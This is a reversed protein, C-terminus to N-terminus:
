KVERSESKQVWIDVGNLIWPGQEVLVALGSSFFQFRPHMVSNHNIHSIEYELSDRAPSNFGPPGIVFRSGTTDGFEDAIAFGALTRGHEEMLMAVHTTTVLHHLDFLPGTQVVAYFDTDNVVGDLEDSYDGSGNWKFIRDGGTKSFIVEDGCACSSSLSTDYITAQHASFDHMAWAGNGNNASPTFVFSTDTGPYTFIIQDRTAFGVLSSLQAETRADNLGTGLLVDNINESIIPRPGSHENFESVSMGRIGSNDLFYLVGDKNVLSHKALIGVGVIEAGKTPLDGIPDIIQIIRNKFFVVLMTGQSTIRQIEDGGVESFILSSYPAFRAIGAESRFLQAGDAAFLFGRFAFFAGVINFDSEQPDWMREVFSGFETQKANIADLWTASDVLTDQAPDDLLAIPFFAGISPKKVVDFGSTITRITRATGGRSGGRTGADNFVIRFTTDTVAVSDGLITANIVEGRWIIRVYHSDALPLPPIGLTISTTTDFGGFIAPQETSIYLNPSSDSMTGSFTDLITIFYMWGLHDELSTNATDTAEPWWDTTIDNSETRGIFRPAGHATFLLATDRMVVAEGIELMSHFEMTSDLSSLVLSAFMSPVISAASFTDVYIIRSNTDSPGLMLSDFIFLSDHESLSKTANERTKAIYVLMSDEVDNDHTSDAYATPFGTLLADEDEFFVPATLYGPRTWVTDNDEHRGFLAYRVIGRMNGDPAPVVEIQGTTRPKVRRTFNGDYVLPAQKDIQIYLKNRWVSWVPTAGKYIPRFLEKNQKYKGNFSEMLSSHRNQSGFGPIVTLLSKQERGRYFGFIGTIGGTDTANILDIDDMTVRFSDGIAPEGAGFMDSRNVVVSLNWATDDFEDVTFSGYSSNGLIPIEVTFDPTGSIQLTDIDRGLWFNDPPAVSDCAVVLFLVQSFRQSGTDIINCRWKISDSAAITRNLSDTVNKWGRRKAAAGRRISLDINTFIGFENNQLLWPSRNTVWGGSFDRIRYDPPRDQGQADCWAMLVIILAIVLVFGMFKLIDHADKKTPVPTTM